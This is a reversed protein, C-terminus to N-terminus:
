YMHYIKKGKISKSVAKAKPKANTVPMVKRTGTIPAVTGTEAETRMAQTRNVTPDLSDNQQLKSTEPLAGKQQDTQGWQKNQATAQDALGTALSAAAILSLTSVMTVLSTINTKKKKKAVTSEEQVILNLLHVKVPLLQM